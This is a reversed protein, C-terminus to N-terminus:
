SLCFPSALIDLSSDLLGISSSRGSIGVLGVSGADDTGVRSLSSSGLYIALYKASSNVM